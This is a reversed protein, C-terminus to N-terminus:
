PRSTEWCFVQVTISTDSAAVVTDNSTGFSGGECTSLMTLNTAAVGTPYSGTFTVCLVGPPINLACAGTTTDIAAATTGNGGFSEVAPGGQNMRASAIVPSSAAGGAQAQCDSGVNTIGTGTM